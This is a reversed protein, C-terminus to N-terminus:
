MAMHKLGKKKGGSYGAGLSKLVSDAVPGASALANYVKRGLPALNRAFDKVTSFLDGGIQVIHADDHPIPTAVIEAVDASTLAGQQVQSSGSRSITLYSQNIAVIYIELPETANPLSGTAVGMGPNFIDLQIQLSVPTSLGCQMTSPNGLDRAVDVILPAGALGQYGYGVGPTGVAQVKFDPTPAFGKFAQFSVGKLGSMVSNLYLCNVDASALLNSRAGMTIYAKRISCFADNYAMAQNTQKFGRPACVWIALKNPVVPLSITASTLRQTGQAPNVDVNAQTATIYRQM